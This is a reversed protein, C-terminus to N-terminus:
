HHIAVAIHIILRNYQLQNIHKAKRKTYASLCNNM